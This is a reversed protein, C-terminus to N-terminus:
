ADRCYSAIAGRGGRRPERGGVAAVAADDGGDARAGDDADPADALLGHARLESLGAGFDASRLAAAAVSAELAQSAGATPPRRAALLKFSLHLALPSSAQLRGLAQAHRAGGGEVGRRPSRRPRTSCKGIEAAFHLAHSDDARGGRRAAGRVDRRRPLHRRQGGRRASM